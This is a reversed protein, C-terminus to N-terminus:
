LKGAEKMEKEVKNLWYYHTSPNGEKLKKADEASWYADFLADLKAKYEPTMTRSTSIYKAGVIDILEGNEDMGPVPSHSELDIMGDFSASKLFMIKSDVAETMPGDTWSVYVSSGGSYKESRVSFKVGPFEKKLIKRIRKATGVAGEFVMKM